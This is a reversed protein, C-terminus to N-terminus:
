AKGVGVARAVPLEIPEFGKKCNEQFDKILEVLPAYEEYFVIITDGEQANEMALRLADVEWLKIIMKDETLGAMQCGKKMLKAVEEPMRGRLDQDEKIYVYDFYKGAIEGVKLISIDSRDGPVGIVGVLRGISMEKLGELVKTYGDINHGYDIIVRYQAFDFVNFRGPNTEIDTKFKELASKIVSVEVGIGFAGAVAAMSNEVNHMLAGNFTAPIKKIDMVKFEKAGDYIYIHNSKLYVAKGGAKIHQQITENMFDNAFYITSCMIREAIRPTYPDDANLVAYGDDKIAEVVLAKVDAMDELTNIGDVGLHDDGINTVIGIDALDYGLGRNVIGGRATELVAAEVRNDLLVTQASKPGTTDGPMILEDQVYVGGTSTMGVVLDKEQLIKSLMRSTTTKGNTGTVSIIPITYESGEPFLLNVIEKAVNRSKGVSPYHHMRIGPCANIEIIAGPNADSIPFSLDKITLDLGAVDLGIIRAANIALRANDPHLDDTVDIAIGGTSLNANERLYVVEDKKPVYDINISQKELILRTVDDIKLKTLPKEHGDGRLPNQNELSILEKITNGGNGIVHAALREAVAVVKEGVVAIRYHKGEIYREVIVKESYGKAIKFAKDVEESTRLDLSVGKGQNGNHPKIVVPYGVWEAAQIAEEREMVVRGEPVPINFNSLIKKTLEKDCAIDVAICSTRDTITAEIKRAHKGYGLQVLSCDDLRSVPINKKRAEEVIAATSPGLKSAKIQSQILQLRHQLNLETGEIISMLLDFALKGSEYGAVEDIFSYVVCYVTENELYRAKGFKLDYGLLYQIELAVHELIHALYTGRELRECFGGEYGLSCKHRQLGPLLFLLKENFGNIDCSPIGVYEELDIDVRVVPWHSYINRGSYVRINKLNM